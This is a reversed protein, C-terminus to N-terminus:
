VDAVHIVRYFMQEQVFFRAPDFWAESRDVCWRPEDSEQGSWLAYLEILRERELVARLLATIRRQTELQEPPEDEWMEQFWEIEQEAVVHRFGCSCNGSPIGITRVFPLSFWQRVSSESEHIPDVGVEQTSFADPSESTGLYVVLCM